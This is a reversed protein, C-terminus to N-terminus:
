DSKLHLTSEDLIQCCDLILQMTPKNINSSTEEVDKKFIFSGQNFTVMQQIAKEGSLNEFNAFTIKGNKFVIQGDSFDYYTTLTGTKQNMNLMQLIEILNFYKLQGQLLQINKVTKQTILRNNLILSDIKAILEHQIISSPVIADVGYRYAKIKEQSNMYNSILLFPTTALRSNNKIMFCLDTGNLGNLIHSTIIIDPRIKRAIKLGKKGDEEISIEFSNKELNEILLLLFDSKKMIILISKNEM